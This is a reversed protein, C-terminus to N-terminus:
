AVAALALLWPHERRSAIRFVAVGCLVLLALGSWFLPLSSPKDLYLLGARKLLLVGPPFLIAAVACELLGQRSAREMPWMSSAEQSQFGAYDSEPPTGLM